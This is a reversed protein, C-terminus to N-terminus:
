PPCVVLEASLGTATASTFGGGSTRTYAYVTFIQDTAWSVNHSGTNLDDSDAVAPSNANILVYDKAPLMETVNGLTGSLVYRVEDGFTDMNGVVRFLVQRGGTLDHDSAKWYATGIYTTGAWQIGTVQAGAQFVIRTSTNGAGSSAVTTKSLVVWHDSYAAFAYSDNWQLTTTDYATDYDIDGSSAPVLTLDQKNTPGTYKIRLQRDSKWGTPSAMTITFTSASGPIVIALTTSDAITATTTILQVCESRSTTVGNYTINSAVQLNAANADVYHFAGDVTASATGTGTKAIHYVTNPGCAIKHEGGFNIQASANNLTVLPNDVSLAATEHGVGVGLTVNGGGTVYVPGNIDIGPYNGVNIETSGREFVVAAGDSYVAASQVSASAPAVSSRGHFYVEANQSKIGQASSGGPVEAFSNTARVTATGGSATGDFNFAAYTNSTAACYARVDDLWLEADGLPRYLLADVSAGNQVIRCHALGAIQLNVSSAPQYDVRGNITCPRKQGGIGFLFVGPLLTPNETFEGTFFGVRPSLATVGDTNMAAIMATLTAYKPNSGGPGSGAPGAFYFPDGGLASGLPLWASGSYWEHRSNTTNYILLSTAPSSIANRQTTDMRPVLAGMTTSQIDLAASASAAGTGTIFRTQASIEGSNRTTNTIGVHFGSSLASRLSNGVYSLINTTGMEVRTQNTNARLILSTGATIRWPAGSEGLEHQGASFVYITVPGSGTDSRIEGTTGVIIQSNFTKAGTITQAGALKVYLADNTGELATNASTGYLVNLTFSSATGGGSLTSSNITISGSTMPAWVPPAGPGQTTLAYGSTGPALRQWASAARYLLDGHAESAITLDVVTPNPYTGSLDGGATGTATISTPQWESAGNNWVIAQGNTPASASLGRGQLRIVTAAGTNGSLDGSLSVPGASGPITITTTGGGANTATVGAGVFNLVSYSGPLSVGEDQITVGSPASGGTMGVLWRGPQTTPRDNPRIVTSGNDAATSTSDFVYISGVGTVLAQASNGVFQGTFVGRLEVVTAVPPVVALTLYTTSDEPSLLVSAIQSVELAIGNLFVSVSGNKALQTLETAATSSGFLARADFDTYTYPNIQSSSFTVIQSSANYVRLTSAM